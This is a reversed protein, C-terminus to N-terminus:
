PYDFAIADLFSKYAGDMRRGYNRRCLDFGCRFLDFYERYGIHTAAVRGNIHWPGGSQGGDTDINDTEVWPGNAYQTGFMGCNYLSGGPAGSCAAVPYGHMSIGGNPPEVLVGQNSAPEGMWHPAFHCPWTDIVAMDFAPDASAAYAGPIAALFNNNTAADDNRCNFSGFPLSGGNRAPEFIMRRAVAGSPQRICHGALIFTWPGVYTGTCQWTSGDDYTILVRAMAWYPAVNTNSVRTRNDAGLIRSVARLEEPLVTVDDGGGPARLPAASADASADVLAGGRARVADAAAWNPERMVFVGDDRFLVPRLAEALEERSRMELPRQSGDAASAALMGAEYPVVDLDTWGETRAPAAAGSSPPAAEPEEGEEGVCAAATLGVSVVLACRM